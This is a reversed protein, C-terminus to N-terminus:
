ALHDELDKVRRPSTFLGARCAPRDFLSKFILLVETLFFKATTRRPQVVSAFESDSSVSQLIDTKSANVGQGECADSHRLKKQWKNEIAQFNIREM